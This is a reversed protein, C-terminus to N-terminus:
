RYTKRTWANQKYFHFPPNFTKYFDKYYYPIDKDKVKSIWNQRKFPMFQIIPTGKPILGEFDQKIFFPFNIIQGHKDTDVVAGLSYFPLDTQNIPHFFLCSYGKPTKIHFSNIFKLPRPSLSKDIEFESTQEPSHTTIFDTVSFDDVIIKEGNKGNSVYINCPSKIIYGTSFMDMLPVCKKATLTKEVVPLTKKYWEPINKVAPEIEPIDIDPHASRFEIIKNKKM